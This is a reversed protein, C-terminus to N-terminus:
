VKINKEALEKIKELGKPFAEGFYAANEPSLEVEAVLTTKGEKENLFYNEFSGTWKESAEDLPQEEFDVIEGIHQFMVMAPPQFFVVRSYMGTGEPSLFHIKGGQELAGRYYSGECFAATWQRYTDDNLLVNWVKEVSAQIEISWTHKRIGNLYNKLVFMFGDWGKQYNEPAFEPGANAFNELGEHTLTVETAGDKEELLWTVLSEGKSHSPHTWTHSFKRGPIIEKIVCRHHFQRAEGQEYFNFTAGVKLEFDPIDFYWEKMQEKLTLAQWIDAAPAKILINTKVM